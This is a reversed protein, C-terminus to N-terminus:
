ACPSLPPPCPCAPLSVWGKKGDKTKVRVRSLGAGSQPGEELLLVMDNANLRHIVKSKLDETETMVIASACRYWRQLAAELESQALGADGRVGIGCLGAYAATLVEAREEKSLAAEGEQPRAVSKEVERRTAEDDRSCGDELQKSMANLRAQADAM